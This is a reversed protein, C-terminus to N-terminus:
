AGHGAGGEDVERVLAAVLVRFFRGGVFSLADRVPMGRALEADGLVWKPFGEGPAALEVLERLQTGAICDALWSPAALRATRSGALAAVGRYRLLTRRGDRTELAITLARGVADWAAGLV